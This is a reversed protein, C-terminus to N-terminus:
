NQQCDQCHVQLQNCHHKAWHCPLRRGSHKYMQETARPVSGAASEAVLCRQVKKFGEVSQRSPEKCAQCVRDKTYACASDPQEGAGM